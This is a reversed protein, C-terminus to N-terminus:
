FTLSVGFNWTRSRPYAGIDIGGFRADGGMSSVDPDFGSYDTLIWLNQGTVFLRASRVGRVLNGPLQYGLTLTQLRLYSGDEVVTSYLRRPRANNARPVDTDTNTPTWRDLACARENQQMIVFCGYAKGANIVKNGSVFTLFADVSFRGYTLSNSVGGYFKPDGQGLIVRDNGTIAGDGDVDVVKYEGPTCEATNTLYCQDGSQWLGNVRYGYIAGLPEGVRLIYTQSPGFFNGTRPALLIQELPVVNGATDLATGLDVVKNRNAAINFTSTWRLRDRQLNVSTLSLEVGRNQVAGINQLQSGFGTTSPVPVSLLLDTTKSRYHDLSVALRGGLLVADLGANFQTQQEWRLDPNPMTGGPALAPIETGGFSYWQVGLGSLSQYSGVAQNGVQGYSVRLKLDDFLSHNQMFSEESLRWAFAGSPFFAWKNNAGFRSSGDYRGTVTFLYKGDVNYNARGIYSLIAAENVFSEAPLLQSGAGLDFVRTADTPFDAGEGQIGESYFTQVSFGGLVDLTGPGVTRRYSVTNENTLDRDESSFIWGRGGSGGDLITRPAFWHIKFFQFNGGFTTRLKLAPTVDLEAYASGLLRASTNLDTLETARAVPNPVPETTPSTKIWNGAADRPAAFPAFQMAAQIGNASNGLSANEVAAANRAVRALSLSTGVRFRESVDSDLNLRIGYREFDSGIEIGEQHTYGASLLYRTTATGGSLSLAQSSQPATRLMMAPYDYTRATDIQTQSYLPAQGANIRAENSLEMFQRATLVPIRKSIEQFGINSEVTVRTEGERGRRTTILVVGNAGRAGYIATASADKLVDISQIEDADIAMLPNDQPNSSNTGQLAPLGDIVYLPESNATISGTGRVRVRLGGGPLGTNSVVQVGALKGQLNGSLTVTPAAQTEFQEATVSAIAGTLDRRLATAYGVAVVEDLQFASVELRLDVVTERGDDVVVSTDRAVYGLLRARLRYIGAPVDPIAFRGGGDTEVALQPGLVIVTVGPLPAGTGADRVTGAISGQRGERRGEASRAPTLLIQGSADVSPVAGTGRLLTDLAVRVQATDVRVSVRRNLPLVRGSYAIRVGARRGLEDLADKLRVRELALTVPRDLPSLVVPGPATSAQQHASLPAPFGTLVLLGTIAILPRM